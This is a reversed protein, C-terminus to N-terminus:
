IQSSKRHHDILGPVEPKAERQNEGFGPRKEFRPLDVGSPERQGKYLRTWPKPKTTKKTPHFLISPQVNSTKKPPNPLTKNYVFRHLDTYSM